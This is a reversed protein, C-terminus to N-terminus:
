FLKLFFIYSGYMWNSFKVYNNKTTPRSVNLYYFAIDFDDCIWTCWMNLCYRSRLSYQCCTGLSTNLYNWVNQGIGLFVLAKCWGKLGELITVEEWDQQQADYTVEIWKINYQAKHGYVQTNQVLNKKIIVYHTCLEPGDSLGYNRLCWNAWCTTSMASFFLGKDIRMSSLLM